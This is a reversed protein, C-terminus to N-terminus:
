AKKAIVVTQPTPTPHSAADRFGARELQDKLEAFTYADGGVTDALM